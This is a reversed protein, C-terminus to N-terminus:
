LHEWLIGKIPTSTTKKRRKKSINDDSSKRSFANTRLSDDKKSIDGHASKVVTVIDGNEMEFLDIDSHSSKLKRRVTRSPSSKHIMSKNQSKFDNSIESEEVDDQLSQFSNTSEFVQELPAIIQSPVLPTQTIGVSVSKSDTSTGNDKKGLYKTQSGVSEVHTVKPLSSTRFKYGTSRLIGGFHIMKERYLEWKEMDSLNRDHLILKMDKDFDSSDADSLLTSKLSNYVDIPIVVVKQLSM